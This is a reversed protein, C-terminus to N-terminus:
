KSLSDNPKIPNIVAGTTILLVSTSVANALAHKSVLIPDVIGKAVMSETTGTTVDYGWGKHILSGLRERIQGSNDGANEVLKNFPAELANFLIKEGSNSGLCKRIVLYIIEGGPVIGEQMAARLAHVADDVREKREKMEIETQGGVHIVAVGGTLKAYREKLKERDYDQEENKIAKKIGAIREQLAKKDGRGGVIVTDTKTSTVSQAKGLDKLTIDSLKHGADQSIYKGGTLVAIDQLINKQNDGFSPAFVCLNSLKGALKNQVLLPLAEGGISPSIIVLSAQRDHISNLLDGMDELSTIDKDTILIYPNELIASREEPHTIFLEHAYGKDFQMGDQYVVQTESNRSEEIAVVGDVGIKDMVEAILKGLEKDESSITAINIYEKLTTVPIKHKELEKQLKSLGIELELRLSMPSIGAAILKQAETLIASALIMTVTTGDGVMDVQKQSAEKLIMAGMNEFEDPLDVARAVGVGDHIIDRRVIEMKDPNNSPVAQTIGVNTGRPGLTSGVVEAIKKAGTIIKLRAEDNLLIDTKFLAM